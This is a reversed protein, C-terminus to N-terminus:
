KTALTSCSIFPVFQKVGSPTVKLQEVSTLNCFFISGASLFHTYALAYVRIVDFVTSSFINIRNKKMYRLLDFSYLYGSQKM